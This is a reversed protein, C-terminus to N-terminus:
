MSLGFEIKRRLVGMFMFMCMCVCITSRLGDMLIM